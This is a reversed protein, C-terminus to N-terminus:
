RDTLRVVSGVESPGTCQRALAIVSEIGKDRSTVVPLVYCAGLDQSALNSTEFGGAEAELRDLIPAFRANGPGALRTVTAVTNEDTRETFSETVVGYPEGAREADRAASLVDNRYDYSGMPQLRPLAYSASVVLLVALPVASFWRLERQGSGSSAANGLVRFACVIFAIWLTWYGLQIMEGENPAIRATAVLVAPLAIAAGKWPASWRTSRLVLYVGVVAGIQALFLGFTLWM